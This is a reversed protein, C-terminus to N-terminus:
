EILKEQRDVKPQYPALQPKPFKRKFDEYPTARKSIDANALDLMGFGKHTFAGLGCTFVFEQVEKKAYLTFPFTYGRV